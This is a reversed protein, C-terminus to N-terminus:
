EEIIDIVRKLKDLSLKSYDYNHLYITWREKQTEALYEKWEEDTYPVIRNIRWSNGLGRANGDKNYIQNISANNANLGVRYNGAKTVEQVVGLKKHIFGLGHHIIVKDGVKLEM